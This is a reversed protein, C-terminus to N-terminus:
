DGRRGALGVGPPTPLASLGKSGPGIRWPHRPAIGHFLGTRLTGSLHNKVIGGSELLSICGGV